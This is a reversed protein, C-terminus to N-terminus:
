LFFLLGAGITAHVDNESIKELTAAISRFLVDPLHSFLTYMLWSVSFIGVTNVSKSVWRVTYEFNTM